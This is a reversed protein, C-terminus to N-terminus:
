RKKLPEAQKTFERIMSHYKRFEEKARDDYGLIREMIDGNRLVGIFWDKSGIIYAFDNVDIPNFFQRERDKEKQSGNMFEISAYSISNMLIEVREQDYEHDPSVIYPRPREQYFFDQNDFYKPVIEPNKKAVVYNLVEKKNYDCYVDTGLPLFYDFSVTELGSDKMFEEHHIDTITVLEVQNKEDGIVRNSIETIINLLKQYLSSDSIRPDISNINLMNGNVTSPLVYSVGEYEVYLVFGKSSTLCYEFFDEGKGGVKFCSGTDIGSVLLREDDFDSIWYKAGLVEGKIIPIAGGVRKKRKRHLRMVRKLIVEPDETCYKRSNLIKSLTSLTIDLEDPEMHYLFVKSIDIVDLISYMSLQSNRQVVERIEDFHNMVQYLEENLGLAEQNLVMRLLCDNDKKCNGLLFKTLEADPIIKGDSNMQYDLNVNGFIKYIDLIGIPTKRVISQYYKQYKRVDQNYYKKERIGIEELICDKVFSFKDEKGIRELEKKIKELYKKAEEIQKGGLEQFYSVNNEKLARLFEFEMGYYYFKNQNKLRFERRTDKFLEESARKISANTGYTFFDEIVKKSNDFGLTMYLKSVSILLIDSSLGSDKNKLLNILSVLHRRNVKELFEYSIWRDAILLSNEQVEVVSVLLGFKAYLFVEYVNKLKMTAISSFRGDQISSAVVHFQNTSFSYQSQLESLIDKKYLQNLNQNLLLKEFDEQNLKKLHEELLKKGELSDTFHAHEYIYNKLEQSSLDIFSKGMRNMPIRMLKDFLDPDDIIMKKLEDSVNLYLLNFKNLDLELLKDKEKLLILFEEKSINQFYRILEMMSFKMVQDM